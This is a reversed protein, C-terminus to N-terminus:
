ASERNNNFFSAMSQDPASPAQAPASMVIASVGRLFGCEYSMLPVSTETGKQRFDEELRTLEEKHSLIISMQQELEAVNTLLGAASCTELRKDLDQKMGNYKLKVEQFIMLIKNKIIEMNMDRFSLNSNLFADAYGKEEYNKHLYGYIIDIPWGTIYSVTLTSNTSLAPKPTSSPISSSGTVSAPSLPAVQAATPATQPISTHIEENAFMPVAPAQQQQKKKFSTFLAM